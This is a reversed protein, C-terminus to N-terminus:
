VFEELFKKLNLRAHYLRSMVTGKPTSTIESIEDYSLGEFERLVLITRHEETLQSLAFDVRESLEKQEIKEFPTEVRRALSDVNPDIKSTDGFEVSYEGRKKRYLDISVNYTIRYIWTYLTSNEQFNQIYKYVKLFVEQVADYADDENKLIGYAIMFIKNQYKNVLEKFARQDNVKIRSVLGKDSYKM